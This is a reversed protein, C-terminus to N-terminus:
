FQWVYSVNMAISIVNSLKISILLARKKYMQSSFLGVQLTTTTPYQPTVCGACINGCDCMHRSSKMCGSLARALYALEESICIFVFMMTLRRSLAGQAM